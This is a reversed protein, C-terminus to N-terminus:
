DDTIDEQTEMLFVYCRNGSNSNYFDFVEKFGAAVVAPRWFDLQHNNLIIEVGCRWILGHEDSDVDYNDLVGTVAAQILEVQRDLSPPNRFFSAPPFNSLHNMGCCNGNHDAVEMGYLNDDYGSATKRHELIM